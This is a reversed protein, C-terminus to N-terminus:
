NGCKMMIIKIETLLIFINNNNTTTTNTHTNTNNNLNYLNSQRKNKHRTDKGKNTRVKYNAVKVTLNAHLNILISDFRVVWM